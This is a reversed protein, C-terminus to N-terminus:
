CPEVSRWRSLKARSSCESAARRQSQGGAATCCYYDAAVVHLALPGPLSRHTSAYSRGRAQMPQRIPSPCHPLRNTPKYALMNFGTFAPHLPQHGIRFKAPSPPCCPQTLALVPSCCSLDRSVPVTHQGKSTILLFCFSSPRKAQRASSSTSRLVDM